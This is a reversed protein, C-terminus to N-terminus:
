TIRTAVVAVNWIVGCLKVFCSNAQLLGSRFVLPSYVRCAVDGFTQRSLLAVLPMEPWPHWAPTHQQPARYRKVSTERLM